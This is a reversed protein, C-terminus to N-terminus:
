TQVGYPWRYVPKAVEGISGEINVQGHGAEVSKLFYDAARQFINCSRRVVVLGGNYSAKVTQRNVTFVVYPPTCQLRSWLYQVSEACIRGTFMGLIEWEKQVCVQSMWQGQQQMWIEWTWIQNQWSYQIVTWDLWYSQLRCEKMSRGPLYESAPVM